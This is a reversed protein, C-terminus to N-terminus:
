MKDHSNVIITKKDDFNIVSHRDFLDNLFHHLVILPSVLILYVTSNILVRFLDNLVNADHLFVDRVMLSGEKRPSQGHFCM